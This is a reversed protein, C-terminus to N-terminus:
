TNYVDLHCYNSWNSNIKCIQISKAIKRITELYEKEKERREREEKGVREGNREKERERKSEKERVGRIRKTIGRPWSELKRKHM